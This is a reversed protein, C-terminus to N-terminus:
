SRRVPDAVSSQVVYIWGLANERGPFPMSALIGKEACRLLAEIGELQSSEFIAVAKALSLLPRNQVLTVPFPEILPGMGSYLFDLGGKLIAQEFLNASFDFDKTKLAYWIADRWLANQAFWEAASRYLM